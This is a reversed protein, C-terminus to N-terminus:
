ADFLYFHTGCIDVQYDSVYCGNLRAANLVAERQKVSIDLGSLGAGRDDKSEVFRIVVNNLQIFINTDVMELPLGMVKSWIEAMALPDPGQLEVGLYDITTEQNVKDQWGLNGAPEWNGSFDNHKDWDYEFFAAIMDAPHFQCINWSERDAEFAIRVQNEAAQQKVTQQSEIKDAQCIVMYGGDGSRRKLYRGAATDEQIPAVVELFNNGIPMLTNELGFNAVGPDVYCPVIGLIDTLKTITTELEEAVLCIQRLHITM